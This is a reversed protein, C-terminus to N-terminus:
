KYLISMGSRKQVVAFTGINYIGDWSAPKSLGSVSIRHTSDATKEAVINWSSGNWRCLAITSGATVKSQDYRFDLSASGYGLATASNIGDAIGIKWVGAVKVGGPLEGAHIDSRDAAFLGGRLYRASGSVGSVSVGVSNVFGPETDGSWGGIVTSKSSTDFWVRPFLAAGKNVAYWGNTTDAAIAATNNRISIATNFDLSAEEGFGDAIICGQNMWIRLNNSDPSSGQVTGCGRLIGYGGEYRGIVLQADTNAPAAAAVKLTANSLVMEGFGPRDTKSNYIYLQEGYYAIGGIQCDFTNVTSGAAFFTSWGSTNAGVRLELGMVTSAKDGCYLNYFGVDAYSAFRGIGNFGVIM